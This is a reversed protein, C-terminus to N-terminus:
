TQLPLLFCSLMSRVLLMRLLFSPLAHSALWPISLSLLFSTLWNVDAHRRLAFKGSIFQGRVTSFRKALSCAHFPSHTCINLLFTAEEELLSISLSPFVWSVVNNAIFLLRVLQLVQEGQEKEKGKREKGKRKTKRKRERTGERTRESEEKELGEKAGERTTRLWRINRLHCILILSLQLLWKQNTDFLM